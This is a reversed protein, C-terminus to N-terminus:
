NGLFNVRRLGRWFWCAAFGASVVAFGANHILLIALTYFLLFCILALITIGITSAIKGPQPRWLARWLWQAAFGGVLIMFVRNPFVLYALVSCIFFFTLAVIFIAVKTSHTITQPTQAARQERMSDSKRDPQPPPATGNGTTRRRRPNPLGHRYGHEDEWYTSGDAWKGWQGRGRAGASDTAISNIVTLMRQHNPRIKALTIRSVSLTTDM